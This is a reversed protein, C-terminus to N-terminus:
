TTLHRWAVRAEIKVRAMAEDEAQTHARQAETRLSQTSNDLRAIEERQAANLQDSLLDNRRSFQFAAIEALIAVGFCWLGIRSFPKARDHDEEEYLHALVDFVVLAAFFLLAGGELLSHANRVSELSNWDPLLIIEILVM